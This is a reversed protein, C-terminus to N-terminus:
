YNVKLGFGQDGCAVGSNSVANTRPTFQYGTVGTDHNNLTIACGATNTGDLAWHVSAPPISATIDVNNTDFFVVTYEVGVQPHNGSALLDVGAPDRIEARTVATESAMGTFTVTQANSTGYTGLDATVTFTGALTSVLEEVYYSIGDRLETETRVVRLCPVPVGQADVPCVSDTVLPVVAGTTANKVGWVPTLTVDNILRGLHDELRASLKVRDADLGSAPLSAESELALRGLRQQGVRIEVDNSTAQHGKEDVISISLTYLNTAGPTADWAPLTIQWGQPNTAGATPLLLLPVADGHWSVGTIRYKSRVLPQMMYVDGELLTMPVAALDLALAAKEKYELVIDYNRDVLDYRSGKLSRMAAVNGPDLQKELATGIQYSVQLGLETNSKGDKGMKHSVKLTALPFPTYDVGVTVARPDKQLNDKGFLAVEDGYYQEYVASAGLQQYAPLYGQARVDFGRAPRELYNDFDKSDKWSSLPHYYNTALKLNDAWWELGLGLRSHNRSIDQDLFTNAGFLWDGQDFRVGAGINGIMRNDQRHVGVQSFAVMADNEYWPSFLSFASKSLSGNDDVALNVQAKGFKGLLEQAQQRLPDVVQAKAQGKAWNTAQDKMQDRTLNNWDQVGVMRAMSATKQESAGAVNLPVPDNGMGLEPLNSAIAKGAQPDPPFLLSSAPLLLSEGANLEDRTDLSGNNLKRLARLDLGSQLAIQYLSTRSDVTYIRTPSSEAYGMVPFLGVSAIGGGLLLSAIISLRFTKKM